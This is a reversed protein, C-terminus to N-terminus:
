DERPPPPPQSKMKSRLVAKALARVREEDVDACTVSHGLRALCAATTLGVYGAGVVAVESM